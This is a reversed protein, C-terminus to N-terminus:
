PSNKLVVVHDGGNADALPLRQGTGDYLGVIIQQWGDLPQSFTMDDQIQDGALWTSTPANGQQPQQDIQAVLHGDADLAQVFVTYDRQIVQDSGWRLQLSKPNGNEEQVVALGELAIGNQWAAIPFGASEWEPVPQGGRALEGPPL